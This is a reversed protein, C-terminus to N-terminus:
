PITPRPPLLRTYPARSRGGSCFPGRSVSPRFWALPPPPLPLPPLAPLCPGPWAAPPALWSRPRGSPAPPPARGPVPPRRGRVPVAEAAYARPASLATWGCGLTPLLVLFGGWRPPDDWGSDAAGAPYLLAAAGCHAAFSVSRLAMAPRRHPHSRNTPCGWPCMAASAPESLALM